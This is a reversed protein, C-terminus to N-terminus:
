LEGGPRQHFVAVSGNALGAFLSSRLHALSLVPGGAPTRLVLLNQVSTDVSAYVHISRFCSSLVDPQAEPFTRLLAVLGSSM